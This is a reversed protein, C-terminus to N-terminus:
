DLGALIDGRLAANGQLTSGTTAYALAMARLRSFNTSIHASDTTSAADTWLSTRTAAKNLSNWFTNATNTVSTIAAATAPDSRNLSSGGTLMDAWKQRLTDFEDARAAAAVATLLCVVRLLKM